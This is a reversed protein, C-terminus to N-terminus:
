QAGRRNTFVFSSEAGTMRRSDRAAVREVWSRQPESLAYADDEGFEEIRWRQRELMSAFADREYEDLDVRALV